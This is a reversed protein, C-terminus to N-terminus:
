LWQWCQRGVGLGEVGLGAGGVEADVLERKAQEVESEAEVLQGRAACREAEIQLVLAHPVNYANEQLVRPRCQAEAALAFLYFSV